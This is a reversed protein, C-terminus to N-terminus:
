TTYQRLKIFKRTGAISHLAQRTCAINCRCVSCIGGMIGDDLADCGGAMDEPGPGAGPGM